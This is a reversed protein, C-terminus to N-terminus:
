EDERSNRYQIYYYDYQDKGRDRPEMITFSMPKHRVAADFENVIKAMILSARTQEPNDRFDDLVELAITLAELITMNQIDESM